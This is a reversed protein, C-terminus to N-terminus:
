VQAAAFDAADDLTMAAGQAVLESFRPDSIRHRLTAETEDAIRQEGVPLTLGIRQRAVQAAGLLVAAPEPDPRRAGLEALAQLVM